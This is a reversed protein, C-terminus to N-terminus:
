SRSSLASSVLDDGLVALAGLAVEVLGDLCPSNGRQFNQTCIM